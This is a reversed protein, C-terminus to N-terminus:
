RKHPSLRKFLTADDSPIQAPHSQSTLEYLIKDGNKEDISVRRIECLTDDWVGELHITQMAIAITEDKASLTAEWTGKGGKFTTDFIDTLLASENNLAGVLSAAISKFTENDSFDAVSESGDSAIQAMFDEGIVLTSTFPKKSKWVLGLTCLTFEGSSKLSRNISSITKTQEFSGTSIPSESLQKCLNEVSDVSVQAFTTALFLVCLAFITPLKKM